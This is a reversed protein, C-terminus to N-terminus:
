KGGESPAYSGRAEGSQVVSILDIIRRVLEGQCEEVGLKYADVHDIQMAELNRALQRDPLPRVKKQIAKQAQALIRVRESAPM